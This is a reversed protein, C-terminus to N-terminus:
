GMLDLVDNSTKGDKLNINELDLSFSSTILDPHNVSLASIINRFVNSPLNFICNPAVTAEASEYLESLSFQYTNTLEAYKYLGYLIALPDPNEWTSRTLSNLVIGNTKEEYDCVGLGLESGIPTHIMINKISSIINRKGKGKADGTMVNELMAYLRDPSYAEGPLINNLYWNIQPSTSMNILIIAWTTESDVGLDSLKHALNTARYRSWKDADPDKVAVAIGSDPLFNCFADLMKTGLEDCNDWFDDMYKFYTKVWAKKFGFTGYRDLGKMSKGEMLANKIANYRICRGHMDHCKLCHSCKEGIQLVPDFTIQGHECNVSCAGCNVCYVSKILVSRFLSNFEIDLKSNDTDVEFKYGEPISSLHIRYEKNKYTLLYNNEDVMLFKGITKCWQKWNDSISKYIIHVVKTKELVTRHVDLTNAMSIGSRRSKWYGAEISQQIKKPNSDSFHITKEILHIFRGMEDPYLVNKIYDHKSPSMPCMLCGVRSNGKKYAESLNLQNSYIYVFLEASGWDLITHFSYQGKHKEGLNLFEYESRTLSEDGRVGTFAFGTFDSKGTIERLKNIQPVTKHVTCCWRIMNGPPGFQIWTQEPTKDHKATYFEISKEECDAKVAKVTEYTDPSEMMTDGFVVVFKSHPIARQVIDLAVVSDKGGSFAVYFIDIKSKYESYVDFVRRVSENVLADLITQNKKIMKEIDIYDFHDLELGEATPILEPPTNLSGGRVKAIIKGHYLYNSSEAWLLPCDKNCSYKWHKNFGLLDLEQSYVPRPEKSYVSISPELLIGGSEEDYHYNYM